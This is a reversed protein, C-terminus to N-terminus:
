RLVPGFRDGKLAQTTNFPNSVSSRRIRRWDSFAISTPVNISPRTFVMSWGPSALWGCCLRAMDCIDAQPGIKENM